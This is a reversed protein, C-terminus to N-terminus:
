QMPLRVPMRTRPAGRRSARACGEVLVAGPQVVEAEARAAALVDVRDVAEEDVLERRSMTWGGSSPRLEGRAVVRHQELIGVADADLHVVHGALTVEAGAAPESGLALPGRRAVSGFPESLGTSPSLGITSVM